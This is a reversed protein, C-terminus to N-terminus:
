PIALPASWDTKAFQKGLQFWFLLTLLPLIYYSVRGLNPVTVTLSIFWGILLPVWTLLVLTRKKM